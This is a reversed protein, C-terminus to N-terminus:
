WLAPLEISFKMIVNLRINILRIIFQYNAREINKRNM